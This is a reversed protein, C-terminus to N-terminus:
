LLIHGLRWAPSGKEGYNLCGSYIFKGSISYKQFKKLKETFNKLKGAFNMPNEEFNNSKTTCIEENKLSFTFIKSNGPTKEIKRSNKEMKRSNKEMKRSNKGLKEKLKKKQRAFVSAQRLPTLSEESDAFKGGGGDM